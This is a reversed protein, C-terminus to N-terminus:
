EAVLADFYNYIDASEWDISGVIRYVVEGKKNLVYTTPISGTGYTKAIMGTDHAVDFRMNYSNAFNLVANDSSEDVSIAIIAVKGNYHQYFNNMSPIEGRCPPCWTAWLNVLTVKGKYDALHIDQGTLINKTTFDPALSNIVPKGTDSVVSSKPKNQCGAVILIIM